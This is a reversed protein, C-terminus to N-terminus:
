YLPQLYGVTVMGLFFALPFERKRLNILQYDTM